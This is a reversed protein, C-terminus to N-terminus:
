RKIFALARRCMACMRRQKNGSSGSGTLRASQYPTNKMQEFLINAGVLNDGQGERIFSPLLHPLADFSKRGIGRRLNPDARKMSEAKLKQAAVPLFGRQWRTRAHKVRNVREKDEFAVQLLEPKIVILIEVLRRRM